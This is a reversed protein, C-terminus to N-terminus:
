QPKQKARIRIAEVEDTTLLWISQVDGRFDLKYLATTEAPLQYPPRVLNATDFIRAGPALHMQKGALTVFPYNISALNALVGDVPLDRAWAPVATALLLIFSFIYRM